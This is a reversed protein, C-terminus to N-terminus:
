KQEYKLIKSINITEILSLQNKVNEAKSQYWQMKEFHKKWRNSKFIYGKSAYIENIMEALEEKTYKSITSDQIVDTSIWYYKRKTNINRKGLLQIEGTESITVTEMNVKITRLSDDFMNDRDTTKFIMLSDSCYVNEKQLSEGGGGLCKGFEYQNILKGNLNFIALQEFECFGGAGCHIILTLGIIKKNFLIKGPFIGIVQPHYKKSLIQEVLEKDILIDLNEGKSSTMKYPPKKINNLTEPNNFYILLKDFDNALHSQAFNLNNSLISIFLIFLFKLMLNGKSKYM